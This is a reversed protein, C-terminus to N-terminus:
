PSRDAFGSYPKALGQSDLEPEPREQDPAEIEQGTKVERDNLRPHLEKLNRQYLDYIVHHDDAGTRKGGIQQQHIQGPVQGHETIAFRHYWREVENYKGRNRQRDIGAGLDFIHADETQARAQQKNGQDHAHPEPSEHHIGARRRIKKAGCTQDAVVEGVNVLKGQRDVVVVLEVQEPPKGPADHNALKGRTKHATDTGPLQQNGHQHYRGDGNTDPKGHKVVVM